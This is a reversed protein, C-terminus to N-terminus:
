PSNKRSASEYLQMAEPLNARLQEIRREHSPHTSLYEELGSSGGGTMASMREWFAPAEQPDYGANALLFLGGLDAQLEDERSWPLGIGLNALINAVAAQDEDQALIEIATGLLGSRTLRETGHREIAHTIEHGMVVALGADTQTVPLIGTYVAMKGGPLCFANVTEPNDILVVEWQFKSAVEPHLEEASRVLHETVRKVQELQPGSTVLKETGTVEQFAEAGLTVDEDLSYINFNGLAQCSTGGLLAVVALPATISSTFRRWLRTMLSTM